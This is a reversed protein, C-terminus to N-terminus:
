SKDQFEALARAKERGQTKPKRRLNKYPEYKQVQAPNALQVGYGAKMLGDALWYRSYCRQM